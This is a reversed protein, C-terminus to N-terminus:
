IKVIFYSKSRMTNLEILKIEQNITDKKLFTILVKKAHNFDTADFLINNDSSINPAIVLYNM